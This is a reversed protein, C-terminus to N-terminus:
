RSARVSRTIAIRQPAAHEVQLTTHALAFRERLLRELELRIGHCDAGPAVLVHASLSPFGSTITWIHLDHVEQVGEAAAMARGVEEADIGRPTAELLIGVSERLVTWSSALVLVGILVSVLPDAERWGTTLVIAGAMVVGVSGLLDAVVHRLAARRNLSEGTARTLLRAAGLNVAIGLAGVALVWGALVDPPDRLRGYAEVFIWIAIAVLLVANTLAALIEARQYGFSRAPTRPRAAIWSAFLALGLAFSDTVMHGADALLALSDAALGAAVEVGIFVVVLALAGALARRDSESSAHSGHHHV